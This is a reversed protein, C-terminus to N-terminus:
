RITISWWWIGCWNNCKYGSRATALTIGAGTYRATVYASDVIDNLTTVGASDVTGGGGTTQRAQVYASDILQIALASDLFDLSPKNSLSNYNGNFVDSANALEIWNGGHAFYGKGTAHVHAFMGHYSSANPLDSTQSYVNSYLIKNSGFDIDDLGIRTRNQIYSSDVLTETTTQVVSADYYLNTSGETLDDTTFGTLNRTQTFVANGM